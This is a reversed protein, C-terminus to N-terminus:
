QKTFATSVFSNVSTFHYLYNIRNFRHQYLTQWAQNDIYM